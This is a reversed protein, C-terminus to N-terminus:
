KTPSIGYKNLQQHLYMLIELAQPTDSHICITEAILQLRRGSITTVAQEKVISIIQKLVKEPETIVSNEQSRGVLRGQDDYARDGFAEYKVQLGHSAALDGFISNIPTYVTQCIDTEKIVSVMLEAKEKDHVLENYLAGHPKIHHVTLNLESTIAKFEILQKQLSQELASRTIDMVKRGFNAKDPYSPHAGIHVQHMHALRLAEKMTDRNGAHGGTAISCSTMYPYLLSEEVLGEGVDCNIDFYFTKM